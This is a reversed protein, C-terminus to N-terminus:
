RAGALASRDLYASPNEWGNDQILRTILYRYGPVFLSKNRGWWEQTGPMALMRGGFYRICFEWYEDPLLEKKWQMFTIQHVQFAADLLANFRVRDAGSLSSLDILGRMMIDTLSADSYITMLSRLTSDNGNIESAGLIANTNSEIQRKTQQVQLALYILTVLVAVSGLFEGLAGLEVITM